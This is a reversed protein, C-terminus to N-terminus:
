KKEAVIQVVAGLGNHLRGEVVDRQLEVVHKFRVGELELRLGAATMMMEAVPPGGSKLELQEETYAELILVGGPRLGMVVRAHLSKRLIPPLHCFISVIADWGGPQIPFDVLDAVVTEIDVGKNQALRQAKELGVASQDVAVVTHGLGALYVANRGEGEALCLIRSGAPIQAAVSVLFTNPDTGYVYEDTAYRENWM